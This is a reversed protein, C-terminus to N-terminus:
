DLAGEENMEKKIVAVLSPDTSHLMSDIGRYPVSIAAAVGIDFVVAAAAAAATVIFM